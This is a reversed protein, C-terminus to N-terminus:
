RNTLSVLQANPYFERYWPLGNASVEIATTAAPENALPDSPRVLEVTGGNLTLVDGVVLSNAAHTAM